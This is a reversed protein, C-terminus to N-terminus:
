GAPIPICADKLFITVVSGRQRGDPVAPGRRQPVWQPAATGDKHGRLSGVSADAGAKLRYSSSSFASSESAKPIM